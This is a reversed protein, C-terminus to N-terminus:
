RRLSDGEPRKRAAGGRPDKKAGLDHLKVATVKNGSKKIKKKEQAM